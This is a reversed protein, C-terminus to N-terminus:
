QKKYCRSQIKHPHLAFGRAESRNRSKDLVSLANIYNKAKSLGSNPACHIFTIQLKLKKPPPKLGWFGAEGHRRSRWDDAHNLDQVYKAAIQEECASV